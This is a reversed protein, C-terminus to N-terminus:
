KAETKMTIDAKVNESKNKQVVQQHCTDVLDGPVHNCVNYIAVNADEYILPSKAMKTSACGAFPILFAILIYKM